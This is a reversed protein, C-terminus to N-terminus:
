YDVWLRVESDTFSHRGAARDLNTDGHILRLTDLNEHILEATIRYISDITADADIAFVKFCNSEGILPRGAYLRISIKDDRGRKKGSAALEADELEGITEPIKPWFENPPPKNFKASYLQYTESYASGNIDFSRRLPLFDVFVSGCIARYLATDLVVSRLLKEILPPPVCEKNGCGQVLRIYKLFEVAARAHDEEAWEPWVLAAHKVVVDVNFLGKSQGSVAVRM